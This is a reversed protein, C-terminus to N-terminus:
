KKGDERAGKRLRCPRAGDGGVKEGKGRGCARTPNRRRSAAAGVSVVVVTTAVAALASIAVVPVPSLVFADIVTGRIVLVGGRVLVRVALLWLVLGLLVMLVLLVVVSM